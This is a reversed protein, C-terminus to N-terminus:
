STDYDSSDAANHEPGGRLIRYRRVCGCYRSYRGGRRGCGSNGSIGCLRLMHMAKHQCIRDLGGTVAITPINVGTRFATIYFHGCILTLIRQTMIINGTFGNRRSACNGTACNIGALAAGADYFLIQSSRDIM